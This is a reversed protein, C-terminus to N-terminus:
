CVGRLKLPRPGLWARSVCLVLSPGLEAGAEETVERQPAPAKIQLVPAM